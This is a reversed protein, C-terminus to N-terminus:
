QLTKDLSDASVIPETNWLATVNFIKWNGNEKKMLRTEESIRYYKKDSDANYQKWMLYASSDNFFMVKPKTKKVDPHIINEGNKYYTDIWFKGQQNIANWGKAADATGDSNNWAQLAMSDHSWHGSWKDYDGDFFAKTEGDIVKMISNLEFDENLANDQLVEPKSNSCALLFIIFFFSLYPIIQIESLPKFIIKVIRNFNQIGIWQNVRM